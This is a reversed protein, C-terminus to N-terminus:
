MVPEGTEKAEIQDKSDLTLLTKGTRNVAGKTYKFKIESM